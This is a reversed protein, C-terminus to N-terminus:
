RNARSVELYRIALCIALINIRTLLRHVLPQGSDPVTEPIRESTFTRSGISLIYRGLFERVYVLDLADYVGSRPHVRPSSTGSRTTSSIM